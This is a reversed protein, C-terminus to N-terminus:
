REQVSVEILAPMPAPRWSTNEVTV